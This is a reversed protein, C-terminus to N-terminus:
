KAGAVPVPLLRQTKTGDGLQGFNNNGWCYARNDATVGCTHGVGGSVQTLPLEVGLLTPTLRSVDTTGIGLQGLYNAGWCFDRGALTIGCTHDYGANLHAFRRQGAVPAPIPRSLPTTGDGLQGYAGYGWCYARDATTVGCTHSNGAEVERFLLGGAVPSPQLRDILTGDGLAGNGGLGWCYARDDTTVGCIHGNGGGSLERWHLGGLVRVPTLRRITTGDGLSGAANEGWCFAVRLPNIACTYAGGARVQRFRRGSAVVGPTLRNATTGDGLQGRDNRGWCFAREDTTVGCSHEPGVSVHRFSLGGLVATPRNRATTTGDGLQGLVNSGWCYARDNTTVGCTHDGGASVQRFSLPLVATTALAPGAGPGTPSEADERCGTVVTLLVAALTLTLRSTLSPM